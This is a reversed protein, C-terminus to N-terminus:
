YSEETGQNTIFGASDQLIKQGGTGVGVGRPPQYELASGLSPDGYDSTHTNRRTGVRSSIGGLEMEKRGDVMDELIDDKFSFLLISYSFYLVALFMCLGALVTAIREVAYSGIEDNADDVIYSDVRFEGFVVGCVLCLCSFLVLAGMFIGLHMRSKAATGSGGLCPAIYQGRVSSFGVIALSGYLSLGVAMTATYIGAFTMSGSSVTALSNYYYFPDQEDRSDHSGCGEGGGEGGEGGCNGNYYEYNNNNNAYSEAIYKYHTRIRVAYLAATIFAAMSLLSTLTWGLALLSRKSTV